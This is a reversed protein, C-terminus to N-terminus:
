YRSRLLSYSLALISNQEVLIRVNSNATLNRHRATESLFVQQPIDLVDLLYM